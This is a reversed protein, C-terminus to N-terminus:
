RCRFRGDCFLLSFRELGDFAVTGISHSGGDVTNTSSYSNNYKVSEGVIVSLDVTQRSDYRPKDSVVSLPGRYSAGATDTFVLTFVTPFDRANQRWTSTPQSKWESFFFAQVTDVGLYRRRCPCVLPTMKRRQ